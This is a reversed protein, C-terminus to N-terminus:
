AIAAYGSTAFPEIVESLGYWNQMQVTLFPHNAGTDYFIATGNKVYVHKFGDTFNNGMDYILTEPQVPMYGVIQVPIRELMKGSRVTIMAHTGISASVAVSVYGASNVKVDKPDNSEFTVSAHVQGTAVSLKEREGPVMQLSKPSVTFQPVNKQHNTQSDAFAFSMGFGTIVLSSAVAVIAQKGNLGRV